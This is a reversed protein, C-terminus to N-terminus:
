DLIAKKERSKQGKKKKGKGVDCQSLDDAVLSPTPEPACAPFNFPLPFTGLGYVVQHAMTNDAPVLGTGYLRVWADVYRSGLARAAVTSFHLRDGKHDLGHASVCACRRLRDQLSIIGANVIPAFVFRDDLQDLFYGLEGVVTPLLPNGLARRLAEIARVNLDVHAEAVGPAPGCDSEGQHWLLGALKAGPGATQIALKVRRVCEDYLQLHSGRLQVNAERAVVTGCQVDAGVPLSPLPPDLPGFSPGDEVWYRVSTGGWACPVLLIQTDKAGAVILRRRLERAFSLGPGVGAKSPKDAHLPDAAPQWVDGRQAFCLVHEDLEPTDELGLLDGRGAMNSQGALVFVLRLPGPAEFSPPTHLKTPLTQGALTRLRSELQEAKAALTASADEDRRTQDMALYLTHESTGPVHNRPWEPHCTVGPELLVAGSPQSVVISAPAGTERSANGHAGEAASSSGSHMTPATAM